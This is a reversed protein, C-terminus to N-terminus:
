EQDGLPLVLRGGAALQHFLPPPIAPGAAAVLIRAFTAVDPWGLTGSGVRVWVNTYGLGELRARAEAALRPLREMSCVRRALEALVATQYGSGTGVELVRAGGRLRLAQTMIAVMLPQSITQDHGIPLARDVYAYPRLEPAVFRERPVRAFADLVREDRIERRLSRVM